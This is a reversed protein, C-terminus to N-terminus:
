TQKGTNIRYQNGRHGDPDGGALPAKRHVLASFLADMGHLRTLGVINIATLNNRLWICRRQDHRGITM